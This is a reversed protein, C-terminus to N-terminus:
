SPIDTSTKTHLKEVVKSFDECGHQKALDELLTFLINGKELGAMEMTQFLIACTTIAGQHAGEIYAEKIQEQLAEKMNEFLNKENSM